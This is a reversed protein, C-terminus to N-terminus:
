RTAPFFDFLSFCHTGTRQYGKRQLVSGNPLDALALCFDGAERRANGIEFHTEMPLVPTGFWPLVFDKIIVRGGPASPEQQLTDNPRM